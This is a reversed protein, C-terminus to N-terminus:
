GFQGEKKSDSLKYRSEILNGYTLGHNKSENVPFCEITLGSHAEPWCFVNQLRWGRGMSLNQVLFLYIWHFHTLVNSCLVFFIHLTNFDVRM